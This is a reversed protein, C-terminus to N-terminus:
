KKDMREIKASERLKGIFEAQARREVYSEIQDKVQDFTPVPKSRKDEVKIIHWGFQTKVPESVQGKDLRFAVEAFEPVMDVFQWIPHGTLELIEM